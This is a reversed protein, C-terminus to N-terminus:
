NLEEDPQPIEPELEAGQAENIMGRTTDAYVAIGEVMEDIATSGSPTLQGGIGGTVAGFAVSEGVENIAGGITQEGAM